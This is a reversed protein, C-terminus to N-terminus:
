PTAQGQKLMDAAGEIGAPTVVGSRTSTRRDMAGQRTVNERGHEPRSDPDFSNEGPLRNAAINLNYGSLRLGDVVRLAGDFLDRAVIM